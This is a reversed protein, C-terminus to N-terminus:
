KTEKIKLRFVNLFKINSSNSFELKEFINDKFQKEKKKKHRKRSM